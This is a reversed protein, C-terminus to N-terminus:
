LFRSCPPSWNKKCNGFRGREVGEVTITGGYEKIIGAINKLLPLYNKNDLLLDLWMKDFKIFSVKNLLKMPLLGYEGGIDDLGYHINNEKLWNMFEEVMAMNSESLNEIIEISFDVNKYEQFLEMWYHQYSKKSFSHPDLNIFIKKEKPSNEFQIKKTAVELQFFLEDDEHAIQFIEDPLLLYGDLYFRALAEYGVTIGSDIEIIPQYECGINKSPNKLIEKIIESSLDRYKNKSM